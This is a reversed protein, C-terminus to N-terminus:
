SSSSLCLEAGAENALEHASKQPLGKLICSMFAGAFANGAGFAFNQKLKTNQMSTLENGWVFNEKVGNSLIVYKLQYAEKIKLCIDEISGCLNFLMKLIKLEDINLKLINARELLQEITEKSYYNQRLNIDFFKYAGPSAEDILDLITSKSYSKRLALTDFYIADAKKICLEAAHTLPIYDWAANELIHASYSNNPTNFIVVRGTPYPTVALIPDINFKDLQSIVERGLDDAGIASILHTRSGYKTASNLFDAPAGGLKRSDPLIDFVIEGIGVIQPTKTKGVM